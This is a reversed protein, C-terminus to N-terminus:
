PVFSPLTLVHPPGCFPTDMRSHNCVGSSSVHTLNYKKGCVKVLSKFVLLKLVPQEGIRDNTGGSCLIAM